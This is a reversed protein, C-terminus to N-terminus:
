EIIKLAIKKAVSSSIQEKKLSDNIYIAFYERQQEKETFGIFWAEGNSSSGTKGYIKEEGNDQILM